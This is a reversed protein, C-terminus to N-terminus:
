CDNYSFLSGSEVLRVWISEKSTVLISNSLLTSKLKYYEYKNDQTIWVYQLNEIWAYHQRFKIWGPELCEDQYHGPRSSHWGLEKGISRRLTIPITKCVQIQLYYNDAGHSLNVNKNIENLKKRNTRNFSIFIVFKQHMWFKKWIVATKKIKNKNVKFRKLFFSFWKTNKPLM